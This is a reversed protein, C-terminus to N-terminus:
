FYNYEEKAFVESIKQPQIKLCELGPLNKGGLYMLLAGGSLSVLNFKNHPIELQKLADLTQGGGIITHGSSNAVANFIEETGHLFEQDEFMGPPGNLTICKAQSIISIFKQITKEGIDYSMFNLPLKSLPFEKRKGDVKFAFDEPLVIKNSHKELLEKCLPLFKDFGKQTMFESELGFNVGKAKLFTKGIMGGCLVFDMANNKLLEQMIELPEEIKFGSLVFINPTGQCLMRENIAKIEKELTPGIFSPLLSSFGTVSAHNRHCISLADQVFLDANKAILQIWESKSHQEPTRNLREEFLFRTNELLLIEGEKLGAIIKDLKDDMAAFLIQKGILKNMEEVHQKLSIYDDQRHRGQHSLVVIKAGKESLDKLVKSHEVIRDKVILKHNIVNSNLDVRIVITKGKVEIDKLYNFSM